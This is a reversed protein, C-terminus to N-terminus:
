VWRGLKNVILGSLKVGTSLLEEKVKVVQKSRDRTADVVLYTQDSLSGLVHSEAHILAPCDIVVYDGQQSAWKLFLDMVPMSLLLSPNIQTKGAPMVYMNQIPTAVIYRDFPFSETFEVVKRVSAGNAGQPHEPIVDPQQFISIPSLLRTGGTGQKVGTRAVLGQLVGFPRSDILPTKSVNMSRAQELMKALGAQNSIGLITHQSPDHLNADILLVRRKGQALLAALEAAVTSSGAHDRTGTVALVRAGAEESHFLVDAMMVRCDEAYEKKSDILQRLPIMPRTWRLSGLAPISVQHQLEYAETIRGAHQELFSIVVLGLIFAVAMMVPTFPISGTLSSPKTVVTASQVVLLPSGYLAKETMLEQQTSIDSNQLTRQQDIQNALQQLAAANTSPTAAYQQNLHDITGQDGAIRKSVIQLEQNYQSEIYTNQQSVLLKALGNAINAAAKASTLTVQILISQSPVDPTVVLQKAVFNVRDVAPNLALVPNLISDSTVLTSYASVPQIIQVQSSHTPANLQVVSTSQYTPPILITLGKGIFFGAVLCLLLLWFWHLLARVIAKMSTDVKRMRADMKRMVLRMQYAFSM